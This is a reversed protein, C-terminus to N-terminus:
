GVNTQNWDSYTILSFGDDNAPKNWGVFSKEAVGYLWNHKGTSEKNIHKAMFESWDMPRTNAAPCIGYANLNNNRNSWILEYDIARLQKYLQMGAWEPNHDASIQSTIYCVQNGIVSSFDRVNIMYDMLYTKFFLQNRNDSWWTNFRNYNEIPDNDHMPYRLEQVSGTNINFIIKKPTELPELTENIWDKIDAPHYSVNSRGFQIVDGDLHKIMNQSFDSSAGFFWTSM